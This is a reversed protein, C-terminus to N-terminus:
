HGSRKIRGKLLDIFLEDLPKEPENKKLVSLKGCYQLQGENLVVVRDVLSAVFDLIHSSILIGVGEQIKQRILQKLELITLVDLFNTPEDLIIYKRFGVFALLLGVKRRMGASYDRCMKKEFWDGIRLCKKLDSIEKTLKTGSLGRLESVVMAIEFGTLRGDLELDEPMYGWQCRSLLDGHIDREPIGDVLYDGDFCINEQVLIKILTSKGSGNNGIVAFPESTDFDLSINELSYKDAGKYKYGVNGLEVKM